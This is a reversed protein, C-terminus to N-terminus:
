RSDIKYRALFEEGLIVKFELTEFHIMHIEAFDVIVLWPSLICCSDQIEFHSDWFDSTKDVQIFDCDECIIFTVVNM